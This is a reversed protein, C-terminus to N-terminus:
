FFTVGITSTRKVLFFPVKVVVELDVKKGFSLVSKIPKVFSVAVIKFLPKAPM